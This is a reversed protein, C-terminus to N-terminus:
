FKYFDDNSHLNATGLTKIFLYCYTVIKFSFHLTCWFCHLYDKYICYEFRVLNHSTKVQLVSIMSVLRLITTLKLIMQIFHSRNINQADFYM